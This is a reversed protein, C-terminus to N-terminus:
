KYLNNNKIILKVENPVYPSTIKDEKILQRIKTSSIDIVDHQPVVVCENVYYKCKNVLGWNVECKPDELIIFSTNQIINDGHEWKPIENFTESTTIIVFTNTDIFFEHTEYAQLVDWTPIKDKKSRDHLIGEIQSCTANPIHKIAEYCMEWRKIFPAPSHEKFPNHWAPVLIVKDVYGENLVKTVVSIHGIHIPDFSGFFLGRKM